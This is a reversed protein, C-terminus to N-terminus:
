KIFTMKRTALGNESKLAYLYTGSTLDGADFAIEHYGTTNKGNALVTLKRGLLDYLELSIIESSELSFGITKSSNFPIPHNQFLVLQDPFQSENAAITTLDPLDIKAERFVEHQSQSQVLDV